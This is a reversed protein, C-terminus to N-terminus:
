VELLEKLLNEAILIKAKEGNNQEVFKRLCMDKMRAKFEYLTEEEVDDALEEPDILLAEPKIKVSVIEDPQEEVPEPKPEAKPPKGGIVHIGEPKAAEKRLPSPAEALCAQIDGMSCELAKALKEQTIKRIAIGKDINSLTSWELDGHNILWNRNRGLEKLRKNIFDSLKM